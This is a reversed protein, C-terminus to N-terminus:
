LFLILKFIYIGVKMPYLRWRLRPKEAEPPENYKIVVGKYTNTDAALKGSPEFSPMSVKEEKM